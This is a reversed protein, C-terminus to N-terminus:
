DLSKPYTKINVLGKDESLAVVFALCKANLKKEDLEINKGKVMWTRSPLLKSTLCSEDVYVIPISMNRLHNIREKCYLIVDNVFNKSKDPIVKVKKIKKNKVKFEKYIRSLTTRKISIDPMERHLLVCRESYSMGAMKRQMKDSAALKKLAITVKIRRDKRRKNLYYEM